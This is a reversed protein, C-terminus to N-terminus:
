LIKEGTKCFLIYTELDVSPCLAFVCFTSQDSPPAALSHPGAEFGDRPKIKGMPLQLPM